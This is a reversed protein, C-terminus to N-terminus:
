CFPSCPAGQAYLTLVAQIQVFAGARLVAWGQKPAGSLAARAVLRRARARCGPAGAFGYREFMTELLRERNALPNQPPETLLIRADAPDVGLVEGFTHDWVPGWARGRLLCHTIVRQTPPSSAKSTLALLSSSPQLAPIPLGHHMDDWNKVVGACSGGSADAKERRRQAAGLSTNSCAGNTIPYSVNVDTHEETCAEGVLVGQTRV